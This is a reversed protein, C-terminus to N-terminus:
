TTAGDGRAAGTPWVADDAAFELLMAARAPLLPALSERNAASGISFGTPGEGRAMSECAQKWREAIARVGERPSRDAGVAVYDTPCDGAIARWGVRGPRLKSEIAWVSVVRPVPWAPREGIRGHEVRESKFYEAVAGRQAAEWQSDNM